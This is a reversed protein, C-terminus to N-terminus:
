WCTNSRLGRNKGAGKEERKQRCKWIYRRPPSETSKYSASEADDLTKYFYMTFIAQEQKEGRLKWWKPRGTDKPAAGDQQGADAKTL